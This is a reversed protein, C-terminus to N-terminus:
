PLIKEEIARGIKQILDKATVANEPEVDINIDRWYKNEDHALDLVKSATWVRYFAPEMDNVQIFEVEGTYVQGKYTYTIDFRDTMTYLYLICCQDPSGLKM